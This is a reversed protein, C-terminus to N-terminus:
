CGKPTQGGRVECIQIPRGPEEAGPMARLKERVKFLNSAKRLRLGNRMGGTTHGKENNLRQSSGNGEPATACSAGLRRPTELQCRL